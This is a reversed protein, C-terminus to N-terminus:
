ITRRFRFGWGLMVFVIFSIGIKKIMTEETIKNLIKICLDLLKNQFLRSVNISNNSKLFIYEKQGTFLTSVFFGIPAAIAGAIISYLKSYGEASALVGLAIIYGAGLGIGCSSLLNSTRDLFVIRQIEETKVCM